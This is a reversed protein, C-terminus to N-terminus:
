SLNRHKPTLVGLIEMRNGTCFSFPSDSLQSVPPNILYSKLTKLAINDPGVRLGGIFETPNTIRTYFM